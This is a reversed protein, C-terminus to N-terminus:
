DGQPGAPLVLDMARMVAHPHSFPLSHTADPVVEQVTSRNAQAMQGLATLPITADQGGWIALVPPGQAALARHTETQSAALAGRRSSLVAALYGRRQLQERLVQGLPGIPGEAKMVVAGFTAFLWDGIAPFRRCIQGFASDNIQLGAPALLVLQTVQGNTQEAFHTAISGGMSYGVLTFPTTVGLGKLLDSLQRQFFALSQAGAVADSLGRGYLDYSLVRFGRAVLLTTLPTWVMSPTTLGHVLVVLPGNAPGNLRYWTRGQSMVIHQGGDAPDPLDTVPTRRAEFILPLAVALSLYFVVLLLVMLRDWPYDSVL